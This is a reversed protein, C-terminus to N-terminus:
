PLIVACIRLISANEGDIPIIEEPNYMRLKVPGLGDGEVVAADATGDRRVLYVLDGIGAPARPDVYAVAGPKLLLGLRASFNRILFAQPDPSLLDGLRVREVIDARDIVFRRRGNGDALIKGCVPLATEAAPRLYRISRRMAHRELTGIRGWTAEDKLQSRPTRPLLEEPRVGDKLRARNDQARREFMAVLRARTIRYFAALAAIEETELRRSAMEVRHYVSLTMGIAAAVQQMTKGSKKRLQALVYGIAAAGSEISDRIAQEQAQQWQRVGCAADRTPVVPIAEPACGLLAALNALQLNTLRREGSEMRSITSETLPPVMLRGLQAQTLKKCLRLRKINNPFVIEGRLRM